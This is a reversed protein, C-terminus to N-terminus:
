WILMKIKKSTHWIPRDNLVEPLSSLLFSFRVLFVFFYHKLSFQSHFWLKLSPSGAWSFWQCSILFSGVHSACVFASDLICEHYYYRYGNTSSIRGLHITVWYMGEAISCKCGARQCFISSFIKRLLTQACSKQNIIAFTCVPFLSETHQHFFLHVYHM